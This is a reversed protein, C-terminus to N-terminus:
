LVRWFLEHPIMYITDGVKRRGKGHDTTMGKEDEDEGGEWRDKNAVLVRLDAVYVQEITHNFSPKIAYALLAPIGVKQYKTYLMELKPRDIMLTPYFKTRVKIEVVGVHYQNWFIKFDADRVNKVTPIPVTTFGEGNGGVAPLVQFWDLIIKMADKQNQRDEETENQRSM